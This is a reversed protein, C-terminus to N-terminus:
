MTAPSQSGGEDLQKWQPGAYPRAAAFVDEGAMWRDGATPDDLAIELAMPMEVVEHRYGLDRIAESMGLHVASTVRVQNLVQPIYHSERWNELTRICANVDVSNFARCTMPRAPHVSCCFDVLLPCRM